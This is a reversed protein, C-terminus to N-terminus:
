WFMAPKPTGTAMCELTIPQGTPLRASARPRVTIVPRESVTIRAHASVRGMTNSAECTYVGSDSPHANSLRLGVGRVLTWKTLDLDQFFM